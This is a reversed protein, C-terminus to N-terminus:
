REESAARGIMRRMWARGRGAQGRAVCDASRAYRNEVVEPRLRWEAARDLIDQTPPM